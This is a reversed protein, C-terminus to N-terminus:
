KERFHVIKNGKKRNHEERSCALVSHSTSMKHSFRLVSQLQRKEQQERVEEEEEQEKGGGEESCSCPERGGWGFRRNKGTIDARM